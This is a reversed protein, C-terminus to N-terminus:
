ITKTFGFELRLQITLDNRNIKKGLTSKDNKLNSSDKRYLLALYITPFSYIFVM